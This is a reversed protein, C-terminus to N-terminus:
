VFFMCCFIDIHQYGQWIYVTTQANRLFLGGDPWFRLSFFVHISIALYPDPPTSIGSFDNTMIVYVGFQVYQLFM